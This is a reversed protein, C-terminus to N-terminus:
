SFFYVSDKVVNLDLSGKAPVNRFLLERKRAEIEELSFSQSSSSPTESSREGSDPMQLSSSQETVKKARKEAGTRSPTVQTFKRLFFKSLNELIPSSHLAIFQERCTRNMEEVDCAHTWFCDHVSAFTVGQAWLHLSTLMMHTSDLSHIFNPPFGNKHKITNVKTEGQRTRLRRGLALLKKDDMSVPNKDVLGVLQTYPQVVPLGLPTEWEVNANCEGAIVKACQTLWDQIEQSATFMENLSEFTKRALYKSSTDVHDRPFAEIDKLQRAIQKSAGYKTVGYVTTMVTQKVVKRTVFGALVEAEEMGAAADEKRKREVISAIESYVDQPSPAPVLNVASAGLSDRGIAAYHQLGNCSGDQHIPLHCIYTEPGGPHALANRIECCASYTQWPDDSQLYWRKGAVPQNASDLIDEMIEDAFKLREEISNRKKLGTLNICHLKLWKFGQEGLPKGKAFVLLSRALDSGMHNLHPPIPYVRGRFDMNHPFWLVEDKFHSAISLRYLADCWLAYSEGKVQAHESKRKQFRLYEQLQEPTLSQESSLRAKIEEDLAPPLIYDPHRPLGLVGRMEIDTQNLFLEVALRLVDHNVRWPVSGLQNIADIVPNLSGPPLAAIREEQESPQSEPARVLVSSRLIYAGTRDSVWPLPPCVMPLELPSFQLEVMKNVAYLRSLSPHPKVEEMELNEKRSRYVKFFAPSTTLPGVAAGVEGAESIVQGQIVVDGARDRTLTVEQLLINKLETGIAMRVSAPWHVHQRDVSYAATAREFATRHNMDKGAPQSFWDLYDVISSDLAASYHPDLRTKCHLFYSTMVDTGLKYSLVSTPPSFTESKDIIEKANAMIIDVLTSVPVCSLFLHMNITQSKLWLPLMKKSKLRTRIINTLSSRWGTELNNTFETLKDTLETKERCISSIVVSRQKENTLQAEVLPGLEERSMVTEIQSALATTPATSLEAVLPCAYPIPRYAAGESMEGTPREGLHDLSRLFQGRDGFLFTGKALAQSVSFGASQFETYLLRLMSRYLMKGPDSLSMMASIYSHLSPRLSHSLLDRWLEQVRDFNNTRAFGRLLLDYIEIQTVFIKAEMNSRLYKFDEYAEEVRGSTIFVDFYATLIPLKQEVKYALSETSTLAALTSSSSVVPRGTKAAGPSPAVAQCPGDNVTRAALAAAKKKKLESPTQQAAAPEASDKEKAKKKKIKHSSKKVKTEKGAAPTTKKGERGSSGERSPRVLETGAKPGSNVLGSCVLPEAPVSQVGQVTRSAGAAVTVTEKAMKKKKAKRKKTQKTLSALSSVMSLINAPNNNNQSLGHSDVRELQGALQQLEAAKLAIVKGRMEKFGQSDEASIPTTPLQPKKKKRKKTAWLEELMSTKQWKSTVAETQFNSCPIRLLGGGIGGPSQRALLRAAQWM